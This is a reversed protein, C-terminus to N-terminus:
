FTWARNALYGTVLVLLTVALQAAVYHVGMGDVLLAMLAANAAAGTAAIAMFRPVSERHPRGSAFTYRRNLMYNVIAGAIAGIASASVPGVLAAQVLGVLLLYHVATGAAGVSSYRLFRM